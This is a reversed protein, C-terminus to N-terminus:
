LMSNNSADIKYRDDIIHIYFIKAILIGAMILLGIRLKNARELKM